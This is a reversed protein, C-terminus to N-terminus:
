QGQPQGQPQAKPKNKGKFLGGFFRQVFGNKQGNGSVVKNETNVLNNISGVGTARSSKEGLSLSYTGAHSGSSLTLTGQMLNFDSYQISSLTLSGIKANSDSVNSDMAFVDFSVSSNSVQGNELKLNESGKGIGFRLVGKSLKVVGLDALNKLADNLASPNGKYQQRILSIQDKSVNAVTKTVWVATLLDGTSGLTAWGHAYYAENYAINKFAPSENSQDSTLASITSSESAPIGSDNGALTDDALAFGMALISVVILSTLMLAISRNKNKMKTYGRENTNKNKMIIM